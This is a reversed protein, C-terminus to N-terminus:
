LKITGMTANHITGMQEHPTETYLLFVIGMVSPDFDAEEPEFFDVFSGPFSMYHRGNADSLTDGLEYFLTPLGMVGVQSIISENEILSYSIQNIKGPRGGDSADYFTTPSPGVAGGVGTISTVLSSASSAGGFLEPAPFVVTRNEFDASDGDVSFLPLTGIPTTESSTWLGVRGVRDVVRVRVAVSSGSPLGKISIKNTPAILVTSDVYTTNEAYEVEYTEFNSFHQEVADWVADVGGGIITLTLNSVKPIRNSLVRPGVIGPNNVNRQQVTFADILNGIRVMLAKESGDLGTITSMKAAISPLRFQKNPNRPPM